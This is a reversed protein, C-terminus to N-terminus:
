KPGPLKRPDFLVELRTIQGNETRIWEAMPITGAPTRTDYIVCVDQGDVFERRIRELKMVGGLQVLSALFAGRGRMEGMPSVFVLDESFLEEPLPRGSRWADYYADALQKADLPM